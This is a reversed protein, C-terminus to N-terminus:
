AGTVNLLIIYIFQGSRGVRKGGNGYLHYLLLICQRLHSHLKGIGM